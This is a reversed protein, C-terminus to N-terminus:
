LLSVGTGEDEKHGKEPSELMGVDEKILLGSSSLTIWTHSRWHQLPSPDGRKVRQLVKDLAVCSVM